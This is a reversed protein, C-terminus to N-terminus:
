YTYRDTYTTGDGVFQDDGSGMAGDYAPLQHFCASILESSALPRVADHIIVKDDSSVSTEMCRSLGHLISEQRSDGPLAFDEFKSYVKKISVGLKEQWEAAM